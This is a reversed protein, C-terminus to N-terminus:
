FIHTLWPASPAKTQTELGIKLIVSIEVQSQRNVVGLVIITIELTM